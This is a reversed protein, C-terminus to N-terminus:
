PQEDLIEGISLPRLGEAISLNAAVVVRIDSFVDTADVHVQALLFCGLMGFQRREPDPVVVNATVLELTLPELVHRVPHIPVLLVIDAANERCQIRWLSM